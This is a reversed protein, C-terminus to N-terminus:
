SSSTKAAGTADGHLYVEGKHYQWDDILKNCVIETNSNRPVYVEDILCTLKDAFKKNGIKKFSHEQEQMVAAVGPERNFDFAFILPLEPDYHLDNATHVGTHFNYYCRGAFNLFSAEYEQQFTLTDMQAQKHAIEQPSLIDKSPWWFYEWDKNAPDQAFLALDYYHNRGEPVGTFSCKGERGLTSLAPSVHEEWVNPKMNAFEDLLIEDLPSGEIREPKDMGVCSITAGNFLRINLDSESISARRNSLLFHDPTLEKLTRWAIKKAQGYTPAAYIFNGDPFKTFSLANYVLRRLLTETKGSRRGAVVVKYRASSNWVMRQKVHYKLKYWRETLPKVHIM